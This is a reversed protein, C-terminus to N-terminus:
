FRYQLRLTLVNDKVDSSYGTLNTEENKVIDYYAMLKLNQDFRWIAGLGITNYAIDAENLGSKSLGIEDGKVDTNPDFFDFKAVIQAKSQGINQLFYFYGGNFKRNYVPVKIAAGISKMDKAISAQDGTIFEARLTTIGGIWDISLQADAGYYKRETTSGLFNGNEQVFRLSDNVTQISFVSDNDQRFGGNYYSVGIGYKVKESKSAKNLTLHAVFDKKKDFEKFGLGTGNVLGADLKLANWPSTKPGQITLMFGMDREGPFIIQSMRGREPSERDSSSYPVEFVFPRNFVGATVSFVKLYPETFKFYADKLTVAGAETADVQFVFSSNTTLYTAKLRGRRILFRKDDNAPFNGGAYSNIGVSDALQYQAQVYGNIKLKKLAEVDQYLKMLTSQTSDTVPQDSTQAFTLFPGLLMFALQLVLTNSIKMPRKKQTCLSEHIM